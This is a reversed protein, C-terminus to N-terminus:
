KKDMEDYVEISKMMALTKQDSQLMTQYAEKKLIAHYEVALSYGAGMAHSEYAPDLCDVYYISDIEIGLEFMFTLCHEQMNCLSVM